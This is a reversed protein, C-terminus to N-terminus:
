GVEGLVLGNLELHPTAWGWFGVRNHLGLLASSPTAGPYCGELASVSRDNSDAGWLVQIDQVDGHIAAEVPDCILPLFGGNIGDVFFHSDVELGRDLCGDPLIFFHLKLESGRHGVQITGEPHHVAPILLSLMALKVEPQDRITLVHRLGVDDFEPTM